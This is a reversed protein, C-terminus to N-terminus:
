FGFGSFNGSPDAHVLRVGAIQRSMYSATLIVQDERVLYDFMYTAMRLALAEGVRDVCRSIPM